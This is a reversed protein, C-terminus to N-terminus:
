EGAKLAAAVRAVIEDMDAASLKVQVTEPVDEIAVSEKPIGCIAKLMATCRAWRDITRNYIEGAISKPDTTDEAGIGCMAKLMSTSRYVRSHTERGSACAWVKQAALEAIKQIDEDKVEDEQEPAEYRWYGTWDTYNIPVDTRIEWGTQDGTRGHIGHTESMLAECLRTGSVAWATHGPKWLVDGRRIGDTGDHWSWGNQRLWEGMDRTSVNRVPFGAYGLSRFFLSSCDRSWKGLRDPQSYGYRDDRAIREAERVAAELDM